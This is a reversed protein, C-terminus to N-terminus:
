TSTRETRPRATSARAVQAGYLRRLWDLLYAEQRLGDCRHMRNNFMHMLDACQRQLLQRVFQTDTRARLIAAIRASREKLLEDVQHWVGARQGGLLAELEARHTRFRHGLQVQVPKTMGILRARSQATTALLDIRAALDFGLDDLMSHMGLVVAKWRDSSRSDDRLLEILGLAADSDAHFVQEALDVGDRGFYRSYEPLYTSLEVRWVLGQDVLTAIADQLAPALEHHLVEHPARFRWRLHFQPDRYRLFFWCDARGSAIASRAQPAVLRCLVDDAASEALYMKLYLWKHERTPEARSWRPSAQEPREARRDSQVRVMPQFVEQVFGGAENRACLDEAGPYMERVVAVGHKRVADFLGLASRPNALDISLVTEGDILGVHRPLERRVRFGDIAEAIVAIPGNGPEFLESAEIRWQAPALVARGCRVRPLYAASNLAGWDWGLSTVRGAGQLMCLFRYPLMGRGAYNHATTMHVRVERGLRRSRLQIRDGTVSVMLDDLTIVNSSEAGSAGHVEVEFDRLLPRAVLYLLTPAPLHVLEAHIAGPVLAEEARLHARVSELLTPDLACFRGLPRAGSPGAIGHLLVRYDGSDVAGESPAAISYHVAFADPLPLGQGEEVSPLEDQGLVLEREGSAVAAVVRRLMHGCFGDWQLRRMTPPLDLGVEAVLPASAISNTGPGEFPVGVRDDLAELLPVEYDGYREVFRERFAQLREHEPGKRGFSRHLVMVAAQVEDVVEPPIRLTETPKHLEVRTAGAGAADGASEALTRNVLILEERRDESLPITALRELAALGVELGKAARGDANAARLHGLAQLSPDDGTVSLRAGPVLIQARVLEEVYELAEAIPVDHTAAIESAVEAAGRRGLAAQLATGLVEDHQVSVLLRSLREGIARSEIYRWEEGVRYMSGNPSLAVTTGGGSSKALRELAAHLWEGDVRLRRHCGSLDPIRLNCGAGIRGVSWGAFLGFPTPRGSMRAIYRTVTSLVRAPPDRGEDLWEGLARALDRSGIELAERVHSRSIFGRLADKDKGDRCAAGLGEFEGFPLLPTRLVFFSEARYRPASKGVAPQSM